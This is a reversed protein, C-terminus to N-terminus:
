AHGRRGCWEWGAFPVHGYWASDVGLRAPRRFLPGLAPATLAALAPDGQGNADRETGTMQDM